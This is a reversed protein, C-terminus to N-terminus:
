GYDSDTTSKSAGCEGDLKRALADPDDDELARPRRAVYDTALEQALFSLNQKALKAKIWTRVPGGRDRAKAQYLPLSIDDGV